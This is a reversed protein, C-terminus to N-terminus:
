RPLMASIAGRRASAAPCELPRGSPDFLKFQVESHREGLRLVVYGFARGHEVTHFTIRTASPANVLAAAADVDTGCPLRAFPVREFRAGGRALFLDSWHTHGSLHLLRQGRRQADVFLRELEEGGIYM